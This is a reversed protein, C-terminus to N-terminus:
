KYVNRSLGFDHLVGISKMEPERNLISNFVRQAQQMQYRLNVAAAQMGHNPSVRPISSDKSIYVEEVKNDLLKPNELYLKKIFDMEPDQIGDSFKLWFKAAERYADQEETVSTYSDKDKAHIIEHVLYAAIIRPSAWVYKDTVTIQKSANTYQAINADGGMLATKDFMFNVSGVQNMIEPPFYQRAFSLADRINKEQQFSKQLMALSPNTLALELNNSEFLNRKAFDDKPNIILAQNLLTKANKYDGVDKYVVGLNVMAETSSPDRQLIQQYYKIANQNDGKEYYIKALNYYPPLYSNDQNISQIYYGIAKDKEGKQAYTNGEEKLSEAKKRSNFSVDSPQSSSSLGFPVAAGVRNPTISNLAYITM